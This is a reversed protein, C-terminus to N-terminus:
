NWISELPYIEIDAQVDGGVSYAEMGVCGPEPLILCTGLATYNGAHTEISCKDVFIHIDISGDKMEAYKGYPLIVIDEGNEVAEAYSDAEYVLKGTYFNWHEGNQKDDVFDESPGTKSKDTYIMQDEFDYYVVTEYGDGVLLKFGVETAGEEPTLTAKLEFM